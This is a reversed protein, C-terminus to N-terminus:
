PFSSLIAGRKWMIKNGTTSREKKFLSWVKLELYALDLYRSDVTDINSPLALYLQSENDRGRKDRIVAIEFRFDQGQKFM